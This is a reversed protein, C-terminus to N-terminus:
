RAQKPSGAMDWLIKGFTMYYIVFQHWHKVFRDQKMANGFNSHIWSAIAWHINGWPDVSKKSLAIVFTMTVLLDSAHFVSASKNKFIVFQRSKSSSVHCLNYIQTDTWKNVIFILWGQSKQWEEWNLRSSIKSFVTQYLWAFPICHVQTIFSHIFYMM